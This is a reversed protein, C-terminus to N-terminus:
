LAAAAAATATAAVSEAALRAAIGPAETSRIRDVLRDHAPRGALSAFVRQPSGWDSWGTDSVPVVALRGAYALVDRSFSAPALTGYADELAAQEDLGGIAVAYRELARAHDPLCRQALEWYADVPGSQIFTNWLGGRRFLEEAVEHPPKEQFRSVEFAHTRDIKAGRLIWGYEVEPSTPEVGVLTIRGRLAGEGAERLARTLPEPRAIYHDSPLFVVRADGTRAIIRALPLLMGLATELNRPQVVLEVGPYGAVQERAISAHHATVVVSIRDTTTLELAREITTQLLSREGDLVAFQKPLDIGYLARTLPALRNGEGGALVVVHPHQARAMRAGAHM